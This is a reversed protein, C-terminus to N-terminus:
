AAREGVAFGVGRLFDIADDASRAITAPFTYRKLLDIWEQQEPKITGGKRKFEIYAILGAPGICMVDPFGKSLGEKKARMAEWQTRRGANPIAVVKIAPAAMYLRKRFSQVIDIELPAPPKM